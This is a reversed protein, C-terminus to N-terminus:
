CSGKGGGGVRAKRGFKRGQGGRERMDLGM